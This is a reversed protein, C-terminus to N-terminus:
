TDRTARAAPIRARSRRHAPSSCPVPWGDFRLRLRNLVDLFVLKRQRNQINNMVNADFSYFFSFCTDRSLNQHSVFLPRSWFWFIFFINDVVHFPVRSASGFSFLRLVLAFDFSTTFYESHHVFFAVFNPSRRSLLLSYCMKSDIRACYFAFIFACVFLLLLSLFKIRRNPSTSEFECRQFEDRTRRNENFHLSAFRKEQTRMADLKSRFVSFSVLLAGCVCKFM